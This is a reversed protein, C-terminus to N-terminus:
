HFVVVLHQLTRFATCLEHESGALLHKEGVLPELVFRLAAFRALRFTRFAATSVGSRRARFRFGIARLAPLFGRNREPWRLPPRNKATFAELLPSGHARCLSSTRLEPNFTLLLARLPSRKRHSPNTKGTETKNGRSPKRKKNKRARQKGGDEKGGLICRGALSLAFLPGCRPASRRLILTSTLASNRWLKRCTKAATASGFTARSTTFPERCSYSERTRFLKMAFLFCM